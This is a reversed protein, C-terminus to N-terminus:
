PAVEKVYGHLRVKVHRSVNVTVQVTVIVHTFGCWDDHGARREIEIDMGEFRRGPEDPNIDGGDRIRNLTSEAALMAQQRAHIVNGQAVFRTMGATMLAFMTLVLGTAM